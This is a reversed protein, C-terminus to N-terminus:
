VLNLRKSRSNSPWTSNCKADATIEPVLASCFGTCLVRRCRFKYQGKCYLFVGPPLKEVTFFFSFSFFLLDFPVRNRFKRGVDKSSRIVVILFSSSNCLTTPAQICSFKKKVTYVFAARLKILFNKACTNKIAVKKLSTGLSSCKNLYFKTM